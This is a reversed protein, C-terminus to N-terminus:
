DQAKPEAEVALEAPEDASEVVTDDETSRAPRRNWVPKRSRQPTGKQSLFDALNFPTKPTSFGM